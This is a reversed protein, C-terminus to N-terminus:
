EFGKEPWDWRLVQQSEQEIVEEEPVGLSLQLEVYKKCALMKIEEEIEPDPREWKYSVTHREVTEGTDSNTLILTQEYWEKNGFIQPNILEAIIM